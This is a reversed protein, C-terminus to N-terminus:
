PVTATQRTTARMGRSRITDWEDDVWVHTVRGMGAKEVTSWCEWFAGSPLNKTLVDAAFGLAATIIAGSPRVNAVATFWTPPLYLRGRTRPRNNTAYYSLCLAVERPIGSNPATGLQEKIAVPFNPPSKAADYAKLTFPHTSVYTTAALNDKLADLLPSADNAFYHPNITVVDRPLTSDFPFSMQVRYVPM